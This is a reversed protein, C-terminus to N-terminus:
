LLAPIDFLPTVLPCCDGVDRNAIGISGPTAQFQQVGQFAEIVDTADAGIQLDFRLKLDVSLVWRVLRDVTTPWCSFGEPRGLQVHHRNLIFRGLFSHYSSSLLKNQRRARAIASPWDLELRTLGSASRVPCEVCAKIPALRLYGDIAM